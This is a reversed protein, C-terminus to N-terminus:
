VRAQRTDLGGTLILAEGRALVPDSFPVFACSTCTSWVGNKREGQSTADENLKNRRTEMEEFKAKLQNLTRLATKEERGLTELSQREAVALVSAAAKSFLSSYRSSHSPVLM